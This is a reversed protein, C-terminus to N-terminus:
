KRKRKTKPKYTGNKAFDCAAQLLKRKAPELDFKPVRGQEADSIGAHAMKLITGTVEFAALLLKIELKTHAEVSLWMQQFAALVERDRKPM